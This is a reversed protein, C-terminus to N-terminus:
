SAADRRRKERKENMTKEFAISEEKTPQQTKYRNLGKNENETKNGTAELTNQKINFIQDVLETCPLFQNADFISYGEESKSRYTKKTNIMKYKLLAKLNTKVTGESLKLCVSIYSSSLYEWAYNGKSIGIGKMQCKYCIFAYIYFATAGLKKNELMCGLMIDSYMKFFKGKETDIVYEIVKYQIKTSKEQIADRGLEDLGITKTSTIGSKDLIGDRKILENLSKNASSYGWLEKIESIKKYTGKSNMVKCLAYIAFAFCKHSGSLEKDNINRLDNIKKFIDNPILIELSKKSKSNKRLYTYKEWFENSEM